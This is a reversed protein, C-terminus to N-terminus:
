PELCRKYIGPFRNKVKEADKYTIDYVDNVRFTSKEGKSRKKEIVIDM